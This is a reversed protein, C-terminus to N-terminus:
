KNSVESSAAARFPLRPDIAPERDSHDRPPNLGSRADQVRHTMDHKREFVIGQRSHGGRRKAAITEGVCVDEVVEGDVGRQAQALPHARRTLRGVKSMFDGGHPTVKRQGRAKGREAGHSVVAQCTFIQDSRWANESPSTRIM